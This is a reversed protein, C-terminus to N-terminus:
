AKKDQKREKKGNRTFKEYEYKPARRVRFINRKEWSWRVREHNAFRLRINKYLERLYELKNRETWKPKKRINIKAGCRIATILHIQQRFYHWTSPTGIKDNSFKQKLSNTHQRNANNEHEHKEEQIKRRAKRGKKIVKSKWNLFM